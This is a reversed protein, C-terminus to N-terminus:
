AARSRVGHRRRLQDAVRGARLRVGPDRARLDDRRGARPGSVPDVAAGSPIRRRVDVARRRDLRRRTGRAVVVAVRGLRRVAQIMEAEAGQMRVKTRGVKRVQRAQRHQDRRVCSGEAAPRARREKGTRDGCRRVVPQPRGGSRAGCRRRRERSRSLRGATRRGIGVSGPRSRTDRRAHLEHDLLADRNASCRRASDRTSAFPTAISGARTTSADTTRPPSAAATPWSRRSRARRVSSSRTASPSPSRRRRAPRVSRSRHAERPRVAPGVWGRGEDHRPDRDDPRRRRRRRRAAASEGLQLISGQVVRGARLLRGARVNTSATPREARSCRWSTSCRRSVRASWRRDAEVLAVPRHRASRRLRARASPALQRHRQLSAAVRGRDHAFRRRRRARAGAPDAHKADEALERRTLAALRVALQRRVRSTRGVELYTSYARKAAACTVWSRPRRPRSLAGDHWRRTRAARGDPARHAGRRLPRGQLVGIGLARNAAFSDPNSRAAGARTAAISRGSGRSACASSFALLLVALSGHRRM